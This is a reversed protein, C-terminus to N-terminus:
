NRFFGGYVQSASFVTGVIAGTSDIRHPFTAHPDADFSTYTQAGVQISIGALFVILALIGLPSLPKIKMPTEGSFHVKLSSSGSLSRKAFVTTSTRRSHASTGARM